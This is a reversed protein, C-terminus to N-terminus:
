QCISLCLCLGVNSMPAKVMTVLVRLGWLRNIAPCAGVVLHTQTPHSRQQPRLDKTVPVRGTQLHATPLTRAPSAMRRQNAALWGLRYAPRSRIFPLTQRTTANSKGSSTRAPHAVADPHYRIRLLLRTHVATCPSVERTARSGYALSFPPNQRYHHQSSSKCVRPHHALRAINRGFVM